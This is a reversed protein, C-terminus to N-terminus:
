NAAELVTLVAKKGKKKIVYEVGRDIGCLFRSSDPASIVSVWIRSNWTVLKIYPSLWTRHIKKTQKKHNFLVM